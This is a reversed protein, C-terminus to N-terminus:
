FGQASTAASTRASQHYPGARPANSSAACSTPPTACTWLHHCGSLGDDGAPCLNRGYAGTFARSGDSYGKRLIDLCRRRLEGPTEAMGRLYTSYEVGMEEPLPFPLDRILCNTLRAEVYEKIADQSYGSFYLDPFPELNEKIKELLLQCQKLEEDAM